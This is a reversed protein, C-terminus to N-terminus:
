IQRRTEELLMQPVDLKGGWEDYSKVVAPLVAVQNVIPKFPSWLFDFSCPQSFLWLGLEAAARSVSTLHALRDTESYQPDSYSTFTETFGKAFETILDEQIARSTKQARHKRAYLFSTLMRWAFVARGDTLSVSNAHHHHHHFVLRSILNKGWDLPEKESTGIGLKYCAPILAAKENEPQISRLVAHVLTHTLIARQSKSNSLLTDLSAGLLSSNYENIRVVADQTLRPTSYPRSYYNDVHLSAQDFLTQIRTCVTSDDAPDAVYSSLDLINTGFAYSGLYPNKQRPIAATSDLANSVSQSSAKPTASSIPWSSEAKASSHLTKRRHRLCFFAVLLALICGAVFSGVISGALAGSSIAGTSIHKQSSQLGSTGNYAVSTPSASQSSGGPTSGFTTLHVTRSTTTGVTVASTKSSNRYEGSPSAIESSSTTSTSNPTHGVDRLGLFAAM